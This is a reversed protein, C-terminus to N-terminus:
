LSIVNCVQDDVENFSTEIADDDITEQYEANHSFLTENLTVETLYDATDWGKDGFNLNITISGTFTHPYRFEKSTVTCGEAMGIVGFGSLPTMTEHGDPCAINVTIQEHLASFIWSGNYLREFPQVLGHRLRSQCWTPDSQGQYLQMVCSRAEQGRLMPKLGCYFHQGHMGNHYVQCDQFDEKNLELFYTRTYDTVLYDTAIDATVSYGEKVKLPLNHVRHLDMISAMDVLPITLQVVATELDSDFNATATLVSYYPWLPEDAPFLQFDNIM